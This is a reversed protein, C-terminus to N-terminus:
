DLESLRAIQENHGIVAVLDGTLLTLDAPPSVLLDAGRKIAIVTLGFRVRLDAERITQGALSSPLRVESISHDTSLALQDLIQPVTLSVALRRASEDEPLVVQNAGVALLATRHRETLAKCVIRRVGLSKLALTTLLNSEFDTGIAVIVTDFSHIDVAQLADEDTADLAVAQTVEDAMAQVLNRDRDIGLVNCGREM